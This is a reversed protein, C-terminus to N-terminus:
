SKVTGTNTVAIPEIGAFDLCCQRMSTEDAALYHKASDTGRHGLAQSIVPLPTENELMRTALSARLLRMGRGSDLNTAIGADDLARVVVYRLASSRFGVHPAQSRLFVHDDLAGPPRGALLYDAIAAGVDALLPLTLRTATKHQTVTILSQRWDIDSLRLGAIDSPRLGTRAALLLIARNRRGIPTAPDPAAVLREVSEAPLVSVTQVRRSPTSPVARSLGVCGDTEELFRCLVRLATLATRMSGPQYRGGLFVVAASVDPGTLRRVDTIEREPLWALVTRSVTAYLQATARALGQRTLWDEYRRQVPGFVSNLDDNADTSRFVTWTYSGTTATASLVLMARRLLKRRWEKCRGARQEAAVFGLFSAVVEDTLETVEQRSCFEEIQSWAWRYQWLTSPAYGVGSVLVDARGVAESICVGM